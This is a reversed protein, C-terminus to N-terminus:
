TTLSGSRVFTCRRIYRAAPRIELGLIPRVFSFASLQDSPSPGAMRGSAESCLFCLRAALLSPRAYRAGGLIRATSQCARTNSKDATQEPVGHQSRLIDPVPTGSRSEKAGHRCATWRRATGRRGAKQKRSEAKDPWNKAQFEAARHPINGPTSKHANARQCKSLREVPTARHPMSARRNRRRTGSSAQGATSLVARHGTTLPSNPPTQGPNRGM